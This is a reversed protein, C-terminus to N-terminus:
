CGESEVVVQKVPAVAKKPSGAAKPASTSKTGVTSVNTTASGEPIFDQPNPLGFYVGASKRFSYMDFYESPDSENPKNPNMLVNFFENLGGKLVKVNSFGKRRLIMWAQDSMLTGNSILVCTFAENEFNSINNKSLLDTFPINVSGPLAFKNFQMSDRIDIVLYSPDEDIIKASLEDVTMYRENNMSSLLIHEVSEVRCQSTKLHMKEREENNCINRSPLLALLLTASIAIIALILYRKTM